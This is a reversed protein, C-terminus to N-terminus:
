VRKKADQWHGELEALPVDRMAKGAKAIEREIYQFRRTFKGNTLRLAEEANVNKFRAINVLVFLIDGLESEIEHQNGSLVAKEFEGVEERLKTLVDEIKDWDFGQRAAKKQLQQARQLGPLNKPVSDLVSAADRHNKERKKIEEWQTLVQDPTHAKATEFVHPHRRVMKEGLCEIVDVIGFENKKASIKSHFLIQYLLDGLEEKIKEPDNGDLADLVEYVEEIL